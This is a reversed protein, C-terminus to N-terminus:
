GYNQKHGSVWARYTARIFLYSGWTFKPPILIQKTKLVRYPPLTSMAYSGVGGDGWLSTREVFLEQSSATATEVLKKFHTSEENKAGKTAKRYQYVNSM